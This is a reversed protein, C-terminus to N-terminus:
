IIQLWNKTIEKTRCFASNTRVQKKLFFGWSSTIEPLLFLIHSSRDSMILNLSVILSDPDFLFFMNSIKSSM